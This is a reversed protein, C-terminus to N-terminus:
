EQHLLNIFPNIIRLKNEIVQNHHMDETYLISCNYQLATSIILSDFLSYKYNKIISYANRITEENIIAFNFNNIFNESLIILDEIPLLGKKICVNSFEIIVQSSIVFEKDSLILNGTILKKAPEKSIFYILLNSDLFFKDKM